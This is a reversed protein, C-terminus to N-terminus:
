SKQMKELVEDLREYSENMGEEMDAQMLGDRDAVSQFVTQDTVRTKGGPLEEFKATDLSAHGTEPLGEFEFTSIIRSPKLVEHYVGHFAYEKGDRDKQIFRYSGGTGPEFKELNTTFGRPGLWQSYLEPDTFAKFVLERPADFERIIVMEQKGPEAILRTRQSKALYDALKDLSENWGTRASEFDADPLGIYRLTFKTKNVEYEEFTVTVLSELPFDPSMGYFSAPVTNGKEDAFSDTVVMREPAMIEKYTGKSWYDKGDPARMDYLYEGGVRLDIKAFPATFHKPGWWKKVREPETWAKWVLQRPSDFIRTIVLEKEMTQATQQKM